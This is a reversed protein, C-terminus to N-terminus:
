FNSRLGGKSAGEGREVRNRAFAPGYLLACVPRDEDPALKPFLQSIKAPANCIARPKKITVNGLWQRRVLTDALGAEGTALAPKHFYPTKM